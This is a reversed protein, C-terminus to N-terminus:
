TDTVPEQHVRRWGGELAFYANPGQHLVKNLKGSM